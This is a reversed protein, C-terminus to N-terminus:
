GDGGEPNEPPEPEPEPERVNPGKVQLTLRACTWGAGRFDELEATVLWWSGDARRVMDGGSAKVRSLPDLGPIDDIWAKLTQELTGVNQALHALEDATESQIQIDVPVGPSYWAAAVGKASEVGAHKFLECRENPSIREILPGALKRLNM